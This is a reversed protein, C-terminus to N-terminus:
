RFRRVSPLGPAPNAPSAAPRQCSRRPRRRPPGRRPPYPSTLYLGRAPNREQSPVTKDNGPRPQWRPGDSVTKTRRCERAGSRPNCRVFSALLTSEKATSQSDMKENYHHLDFLQNRVGERELYDDGKWYTAKLTGIHFRPPSQSGRHRHPIGM